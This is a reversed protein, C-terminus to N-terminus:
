QRWSVGVSLSRGSRYWQRLLPGQRVEFPSDLLNKLDLRGSMSPLLPFRLSFDLMPRPMELVNEVTAGAPRANIIREGVVNYLLTASTSRSSSTYTIGTNVVYPAQGVMAREEDDERGTVVRHTGSVRTATPQVVHDGTGRAARLVRSLLLETALAASAERLIRLAVDVPLVLVALACFALLVFSFPKRSHRM